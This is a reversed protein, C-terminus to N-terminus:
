EIHICCGIPFHFLNLALVLDFSPVMHSFSCSCSRRYQVSWSTAKTYSQPFVYLIIIVQSLTRFLFLIAYWRVSILRGVFDRAAKQRKASFPKRNRSTPMVRVDWTNSHRSICWLYFDCSNTKEKASVQLWCWIYYIIFPILTCYISVTVPDYNMHRSYFLLMLTYGM